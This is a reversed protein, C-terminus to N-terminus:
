FAWGISGDLVPQLGLTVAEDSSGGVFYAAGGGLRLSLGYDWTWQWGATVAFGVSLVSFDIAGMREDVPRACLVHPELYLGHLAAGQPYVLLGVGLASAVSDSRRYVGGEVALAAHRGLVFDAEGGYVGAAAALPDLLFALRRDADRVDEDSRDAFTPPEDAGAQRSCSLAAFVAAAAAICQIRAM